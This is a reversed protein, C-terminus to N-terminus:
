FLNAAANVCKKCVNVIHDGLEIVDVNKAGCEDCICLVLHDGNIEELDELSQGFGKKTLATLRLYYSDSAIKHHSRRRARENGWELIQADLTERLTLLKM